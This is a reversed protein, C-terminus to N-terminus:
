RRAGRSVFVRRQLRRHLHHLTRCAKAGRARDEQHIFQGWSSNFTPSNAIIREGICNLVLCLQGIKKFWMKIALRNDRGNVWLWSKLCCRKPQVPQYPQILMRSINATWKACNVSHQRNWYGGACQVDLDQWRGESQRSAGCAQM